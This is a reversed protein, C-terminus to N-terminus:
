LDDGLLDAFAPRARADWRGLDIRVSLRKPSLPMREGLVIITTRRFSPLSDAAAVLEPLLDKLDSGFEEGLVLGVLFPRTGSQARVFEAAREGARAARGPADTPAYSDIVVGWGDHRGAGGQRAPDFLVTAEGRETRRRTSEIGFPSMPDSGIVVWEMRAARQSRTLDQAAALDLAPLDLVIVGPVTTAGVRSELQQVGVVGAALVLAMLILITPLKM